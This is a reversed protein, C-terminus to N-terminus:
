SLSFFFPLSQLSPAVDPGGRLMQTCQENLHTGQLQLPVCSAHRPVTGQLFLNLAPCASSGSVVLDLVMPMPHPPPTCTNHTPPFLQSILVRSDTLPIM